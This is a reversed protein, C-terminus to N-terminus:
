EEWDGWRGEGWEKWDRGGRKMGEEWDGWKGGGESRGTGGLVEKGEM